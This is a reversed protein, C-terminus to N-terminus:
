ERAHVYEGKNKFTELDIFADIQTDPMVSLEKGQDFAM